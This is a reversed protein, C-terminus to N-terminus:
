LVNKAADWAIFADRVLHEIETDTSCWCQQWSKELVNELVDGAARLREITEAAARLVQPDAKVFRIEQLLRAVIDDDSM